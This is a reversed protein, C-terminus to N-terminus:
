ILAKPQFKVLCEPAPSEIYNVVLQCYAGIVDCGLLKYISCLTTSLDADMVQAYQRAKSIHWSVRTYKHASSAGIQDDQDDVGVSSFMGYGILKLAYNRAKPNFLWWIRLVTEFDRSVRFFKDMCDYHHGREIDCIAEYVNAIERFFMFVSNVDGYKSDNILIDIRRVAMGVAEELKSINKLRM